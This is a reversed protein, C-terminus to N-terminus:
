PSPEYIRRHDNSGNNVAIIIIATTIIYNTRAKMIDVVLLVIMETALIGTITAPFASRQDLVRDEANATALVKSEM